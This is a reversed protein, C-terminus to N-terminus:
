ELSTGIYDAYTKRFTAKSFIYGQLDDVDQVGVHIETDDDLDSCEFVLGASLEGRVHLTLRKVTHQRGGSTIVESPQPLPSKRKLYEDTEFVNLGDHNKILRVKVGEILAIDQFYVEELASSSAPRVRVLPGKPNLNSYSLVEFPLGNTTEIHDGIIPVILM